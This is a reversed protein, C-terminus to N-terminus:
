ERNNSESRGHNFHGRKCKILMENLKGFYDTKTTITPTTNNPPIYVGCLFMDNEFQFLSTELRFWLFGETDEVLKLGFRIHNKALVTIGGSHRIANKHKPRVQSYDWSGEINIKLTDAKCTETLIIIDYKQILELFSPNDLKSKLGEVNFNLIQFHQPNGLSRCM